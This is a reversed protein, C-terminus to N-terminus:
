CNVRSLQDLIIKGVGNQYLWYGNTQGKFSPEGGLQGFPIFGSALGIGFINKLPRETGDQSAIVRCQRDVLAGGLDARLEIKSGNQDFLDITRPRYGFAPVILDASEFLEGLQDVAKLALLSTRPEPKRGGVGLIQMLLERGDFRMGALRFLRGTKPCVDNADFDTYGNTLAEEPSGFYIKPKTRYLIKIGQDSFNLGSDTRLLKWATSFASHSSGIIVVKPDPKSQLLRKWSKGVPDALIERTLLVKKSLPGALWRRGAIKQSVAHSRSQVGGTALVLQGCKASFPIGNKLGQIFYTGDPQQRASQVITKLYVRSSRHSDIIRKLYEGMAELFRGVIPLPM